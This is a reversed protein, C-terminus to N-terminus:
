MTKHATYIRDIFANDLRELLDRNHKNKTIQQVNNLAFRPRKKLIGSFADCLRLAAEFDISKKIKFSNTALCGSKIKRLSDKPFKFEKTLIRKHLDASVGRFIRGFSEEDIMRQDDRFYRQQGLLVGTVGRDNLGRVVPSNKDILRVLVDLGFNPAIFESIVPFTGMGGTILFINDGTGIFCLYHHVINVCNVLRSGKALAPRLFVRWAPSAQTVASYVKIECGERAFSVKEEEWKQGERKNVKRYIDNVIDEFSGDGYNSSDVQYIAVQIKENKAM